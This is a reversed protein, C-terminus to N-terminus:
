LGYHDFVHRALVFEEELDLPDEPLYLPDETSDIHMAKLKLGSEKLNRQQWEPNTVRTFLESLELGRKVSATNIKKQGPLVYDVAQPIDDSHMWELAYYTTCMMALLYNRYENKTRQAWPHDGGHRYILNQRQFVKSAQLGLQDGLALDLIVVLSEAFNLYRSLDRPEAPAPPLLQWIVRHNQEHYISIENFRALALMQEVPETVDNPHDVFWMMESYSPTYDIENKFLDQRSLGRMMSCVKASFAGGLKLYSRRRERYLSSLTLLQNDFPYEDLTLKAHQRSTSLKALKKLDKLYNKVDANM